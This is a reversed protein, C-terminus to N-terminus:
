CVPSFDVGTLNHRLIEDRLQSSVVEAINWEALRFYHHGAAKSPDIVLKYVAEIRRAHDLTGSDDMRLHSRQYDICDLANIANVIFWERDEYGIVTVPILQWEAAALPALANAMTSSIVSIGYATQTYDVPPHDESEFTGNRPSRIPHGSSYSWVDSSESNRIVLRLHWSPAASRTLRYFKMKKGTRRQLRRVCCIESILLRFIGGFRICNM